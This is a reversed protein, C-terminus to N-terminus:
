IWARGQLVSTLEAMKERVLARSVSKCNPKFFTEFWDKLILRLFSISITRHCPAGKKCKVLVMADAAQATDVAISTILYNAPDIARLVM